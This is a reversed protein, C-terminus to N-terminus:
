QVTREMLIAKGKQLSALVVRHGPKKKQFLRGADRGAEEAGPLDMQNLLLIASPSQFFTGYGRPHLAVEVLHRPQLTEEPSLQLLSQLLAPRHVHPSVPFHGLAGLGLLLVVGHAEGPSLAPEYLAPAKLSCGRAGDAEVIVRDVCPLSQLHFLSHSPIGLVKGGELGSGLCIIPHKALMSPLEGAWNERASVLLPISEPPPYIRTTTTLVTRQGMLGSEEGLRYLATSKGGAGILAVVGWEGAGLLDLLEM